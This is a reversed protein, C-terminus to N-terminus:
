RMQPSRYNWLPTDVHGALRFILSVRCRDIRGQAAVHHGGRQAYDRRLRGQGGEHEVFAIVEGSKVQIHDRAEGGAHDADDEAPSSDRGDGGSPELAGPRELRLTVGEILLRDEAQKAHDQKQCRDEVPLGLRLVGAGVLDLSEAGDDRLLLGLDVVELASVDDQGVLHLQEGAGGRV